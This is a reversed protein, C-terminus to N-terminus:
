ERRMDQQMRQADRDMQERRMDQQVRQTDRDVQGRRLDEQVMQADRNMQAKRMDRQLTHADRDLEELRMVDLLHQARINQLQELTRAQEIRMEDEVQQTGRKMQKRQYDELLDQTHSDLQACRMEEQKREQDKRMDNEMSQANREMQETAKAHLWANKEREQYEKKERIQRLRAEEQM